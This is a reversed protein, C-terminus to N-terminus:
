FKNDEIEQMIWLLISVITEPQRFKNFYHDNGWLPLIDTNPVISDEILTLGDNPGQSALEHFNPFARLSIHKKLPIGILNLIYVHKPNEIEGYLPSGEEKRIDYIGQFNLGKISMGIKMFMRNLFSKTKRTVLDTGKLLGAVNIWSKVKQFYEEKGCLKFAIKIDSGGKSTSYLIIKEKGRYDKIYDCIMKGNEYVSSDQGIPINEHKLNVTRLIRKVPEGDAGVIPNDKYFMGPVIVLMYDSKSFDPKRQLVESETKNLFEILKSTRSAQVFYYFFMASSYDVDQNQFFISKIKETNLEEKKYKTQIDHFLFLDDKCFIRLGFSEEKCLINQNINKFEIRRPTYCATLINTISLIIFFFIIPFKKRGDKRM